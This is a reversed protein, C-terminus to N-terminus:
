GRASTGPEVPVVPPTIADLATLKTAITSARTQIADLLVQDAPTITGQSNQLETIKANLAAIDGTLGTVATDIQDNFANQATAFDSIASMIIKRAKRVNTNTEYQFMIIADLM